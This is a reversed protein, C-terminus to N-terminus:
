LSVQNYPSKGRLLCSVTHIGALWANAVILMLVACSTFCHASIVPPKSGVLDLGIKVKNWSVQYKMVHGPEITFFLALM